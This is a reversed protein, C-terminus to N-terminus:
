APPKRRLRRAHAVTARLLTELQPIALTHQWDCACASAHTIIKAQILIGAIYGEAFSPLAGAPKISDVAALIAHIMRRRKAKAFHLVLAEDQAETATDLMLADYPAGPRVDKLSACGTTRSILAHRYEDRRHTPIQQASCAAAFARWFLATQPKTLRM